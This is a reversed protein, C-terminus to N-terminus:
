CRGPGARGARMRAASQRDLASSVQEAAAAASSSRGGAVLPPPQMRPGDPGAAGYASPSSVARPLALGARRAADREERIRQVRCLFGQQQGIVSGPRMVRLWGMAARATFGHARMMWLAVLTGTRGLGAKCHVAVAGRAGGVVAFFRAVLPGPPETCDEFALAHHRIGAAEFARADYEEENLQVVDSVGLDRLLEAYYAPSFRRSGRATDDAYLAGGALDHPGRFAVLKGPVVQHLDANCPEDYHSYEEMDIGGWLPSGAVTPRAIWGCEKGKYLGEWCDRLTLGFDAPLYTADRFDELLGSPIHSLHEAAQDPTMDMKLILYGGLLMLANAFPRRGSEVSLVLQACSARACAAMEQDLQEIFRTTCAMNMPGFDDCFPHYQITEHDIQFSLFRRNHPHGGNQALFLKVTKTQGIQQELICFCVPTEDTM